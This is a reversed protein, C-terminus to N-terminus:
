PVSLMAPQTHLHLASPTLLGCFLLFLLVSDIDDAIQELAQASTGTPVSHSGLKNLVLKLLTVPQHLQVVAVQGFHNSLLDPMISALAHM